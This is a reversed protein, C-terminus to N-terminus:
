HRLLWLFAAVIGIILLGLGGFLLWIALSPM